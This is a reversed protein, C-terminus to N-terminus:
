YLGSTPSRPRPAERVTGTAAPAETGPKDKDAKADGKMAGPQILAQVRCQGQTKGCEVRSVGSTLEVTLRDGRVNFSGATTIIVVHREVGAGIM